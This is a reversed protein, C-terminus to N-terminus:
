CCSNYRRSYVANIKDLWTTYTTWDNSLAEFYGIQMGEDYAGDRQYVFSAKEKAKALVLEELDVEKKIADLEKDIIEEVKKPKADPTLNVIIRFIGADISLESLGSISTALGADVLKPYLRSSLGNFVIDGVINIAASDEHNFAPIHFAIALIKSLGENYITMKKHGVQKPEQPV